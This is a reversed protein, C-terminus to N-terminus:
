GRDPDHLGVVAYDINGNLSPNSFAQAVNAGAVHVSNGNLTPVIPAKEMVLRDLDGWAALAADVDTMSKIRQIESNIEPDDLMSRNSNGQDFIQSGEFLPPIFTSGSLWDPCWSALVADDQKAPAGVVEYYTAADISNLHVTIGAKKLSEQFAEAQASSSPAAAVDLTFEFGDAYGAEALLEKAKAVDPGPYLDFEQYGPLSPPLITTTTEAMQPGGAATQMSTRDVAYNIAQRVRVDDMGDKSTDLQVFGTCGTMGSVVRSKIDPANLRGLTAPQIQDGIANADDGQGALLREDITAPDLGITFDFEDPQATRIDDSADSWHENRTLVLSSGRDYSEVRYPGSAVPATDVSSRTITDAQEHPFPTFPAQSVVSAFEPEPHDLHFVITKEDPTEISDLPGSEYYGAYDEPLELTTKAYPSGIAIRPDLSREVGFKIDASTIPTGDEFAVDDKLTFTWTKGGDSPTGLDTALDPVIDDATDTGGPGTATLTRYLLRYLNSVGSDWGQAPDLHSFDEALLVHVTGGQEAGAGAGAGGDGDDGGKCGALVLSVGVVAVVLGFRRSSM